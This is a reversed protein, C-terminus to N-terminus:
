VLRFLGAAETSGYRLSTRAQVSTSEKTANPITSKSLQPSPSSFSRGKSLSGVGHAFSSLSIHNDRHFIRQSAVGSTPIVAVGAIEMDVGPDGLVSIVIVFVATVRETLEKYVFASIQRSPWLTPATAAGQNAFSIREICFSSNFLTNRWIEQRKFYLPRADTSPLLHTVSLM